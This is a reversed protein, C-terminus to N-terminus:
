HRRSCDGDDFAVDNSGVYEIRGYAYVFVPCLRVGAGLRYAGLFNGFGGAGRRQSIGVLGPLSPIEGIDWLSAPDFLYRVFAYMDGEHQKVSVVYLYRILIV